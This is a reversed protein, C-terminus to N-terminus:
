YFSLLKNDTPTLNATNFFISLCIHALIGKHHRKSNSISSCLVAHEVSERVWCCCVNVGFNRENERLKKKNRKECCCCYCCCLLRLSHKHACPVWDSALIWSSTQSQTPLTQSHGTTTHTQRTKKEHM